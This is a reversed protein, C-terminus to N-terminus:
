DDRRFDKLLMQFFSQCQSMFSQFMSMMMETITAMWPPPTTPDAAAINAYLPPNPLVTASKSRPMRTMTPLGPFASNYSPGHIPPADSITSSSQMEKEEKKKLFYRELEKRHPCGRYSAVHDGHCNSCKISETTRPCETILHNGSCRVCVNRKGCYRKTHGFEQCNHCQPLEKVDKYPSVRFLVSNVARVAKIQNIKVEPTTTILIEPIDYHIGMEDTRRLRRVDKVGPIGQFAETVTRIDESLEIGKLIFKNTKVIRHKEAYTFYQLRSKKFTELLDQYTSKNHAFVKISDRCRRVDFDKIGVNNLQRVLENPTHTLDVVIPPFIQKKPIEVTETNKRIDNQSHNHNQSVRSKSPVALIGFKNSVPTPTVQMRYSASTRAVKEAPRFGDLDPPRKDQSPAVHTLDRRDNHPEEDMM